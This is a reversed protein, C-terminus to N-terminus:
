IPMRMIEQYASIMRDRVAVVTELTVEAAAIATVVDVLEAENNAAAISMREGQELSDTVSGIAENLYDQFGAQEGGEASVGESLKGAIAQQYAQAASAADIAM